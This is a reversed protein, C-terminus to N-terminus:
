VKGGSTSGKETVAREMAEIVEEWRDGSAEGTKVAEGAPVTLLVNGIKKFM